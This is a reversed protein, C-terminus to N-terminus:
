IARAHNEMCNKHVKNKEAAPISRTNGKPASKPKPAAAKPADKPKSPAAGSRIADAMLKQSKPAPLADEKEEEEEGMM